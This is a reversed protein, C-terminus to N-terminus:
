PLAEIILKFRFTGTQQVGLVFNVNLSAGNALPSGLNVTITSNYGGGNSQNPPMELTLGNTTVTCPPSGAGSATCTAPDNIPGVAGENSSTLARLDAVGGGPSPFTTIDVIRFRLRTVSAGTTNQVRRRVVLTGFSGNTVPAFSRFRNPASSSSLTSDLLPLLLGGTDRRIPSTLNEPGPAGLRQTVGPISMGQTDAFLFDALNDNTDKPNGATLSRFYTYEVTPVAGVPPLTSGERMLDCVGGTFTGFGVADLRNASSINLVNASSFVTVNHDDEIDSTMTLNGAAAGSGGYNALSYQSGVVLYHGRAPIVTGNPITGILVPTVNCDAGMKYVGYGGSGDSAAVTLPSNTNNYLEVFDDGANVPGHTRLESILLTGATNAVKITGIAQNDSIAAGNQPNTLNLLFTEDPESNDTDACVTVSITKFQQGASFSVTGSAAVYDAGPNGCTGAVAHGPAVAQDATAYDVSEGGIAPSSLTVTFLMNTTGSTPEVVSADNVAISGATVQHPETDNSGNFNTDGAYTATITRSGAVTLAV